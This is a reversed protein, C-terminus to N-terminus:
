ARGKKSRWGFVLILLMVFLVAVITLSEAVESELWARCAGILVLMAGLLAAISFIMQAITLNSRNSKLYENEVALLVLVAGFFNVANPNATYALYWGVVVAGILLLIFISVILKGFPSKWSKPLRTEVSPEVEADQRASKLTSKIDEVDKKVGQLEARERKMANIQEEIYAVRGKVHRNINNKSM